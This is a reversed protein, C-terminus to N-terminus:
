LSRAQFRMLGVGALILRQRQTPHFGFRCVMRRFEHELHVFRLQRPRNFLMRQKGSDPSLSCTYHEELGSM